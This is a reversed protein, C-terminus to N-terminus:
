IVKHFKFVCVCLLEEKEEVKGKQARGWVEEGAERCGRPKCWAKGAVAQIMERQTRWGQGRKGRCGGAVPFETFLDDPIPVTLPQQLRKPEWSHAHRAEEPTEGNWHQM